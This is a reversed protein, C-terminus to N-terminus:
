FRRSPGNPSFRSRTDQRSCHAPSPDKMCHLAMLQLKIIALRASYVEPGPVVFEPPGPPPPMNWAAVGVLTAVYVALANIISRVRPWPLMLDRRADFWTRLRGALLAALAHILLGWLDWTCLPLCIM